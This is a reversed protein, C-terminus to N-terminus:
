SISTIRATGASAFIGFHQLGVQASPVEWYDGPSMRIQYDTISVASGPKIYLTGNGENFVTLVKRNSDVEAFALSATSTFSSTSISNGTPYAAVRIPIPTGSTSGQVTLVDVSPTGAIGANAFSVPVASARLQTDTLPQTLGTNATVTGSIPIPNGANAFSVPVASARLQTDTLPQTSGTDGGSTNIEIAQLLSNIKQLSKNSPDTALPADGEPFFSPM